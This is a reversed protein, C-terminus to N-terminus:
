PQWHTAYKHSIINSKIHLFDKWCNRISMSVENSERPFESPEAILYLKCHTKAEGSLGSRPVLIAFCKKKEFKIKMLLGIGEAEKQFKKDWAM